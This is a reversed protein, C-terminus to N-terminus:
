LRPPDVCSCGGSVTVGAHRVAANTVSSAKQIARAIDIVLTPCLTSHFVCVISALCSAPYHLCCRQPQWLFCSPAVQRENATSALASFGEIDSLPLFAAKVGAQDGSRWSAALLSCAAESVARCLQQAQAGLVRSVPLHQSKRLTKTYLAAQYM